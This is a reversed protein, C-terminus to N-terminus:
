LIYEKIDLVYVARRGEHISDFSIKDGSRNWCPHLDCRIDGAWQSFTKFSGLEIKKGSSLEFLILQQEANSDPFTDSVFFRRDPSFCCHGDETFQDKGVPMYEGSKDKILYFCKKGTGEMDSWVLLHDKGYWDFHAPDAKFDAVQFMDSGDPNATVLTTYWKEQEPHYFRFSFAFRSDDANFLCRSIIVFMDKMESIWFKEAIEKFSILLKSKGESIDLKMIGEDHPIGVGNPYPVGPYGYGPRYSYVRAFDHGLAWKGDHSVTFIAQPMERSQGSFIDLVVSAFHDKKRVNYIIERESHDGLWHVMCDLQFNWAHTRALPIFKEAELDIMGLVAEDEPYPMRHYFDTKHCLFFRGTLDWPQINYFGHFYFGEETTICKVSPPM